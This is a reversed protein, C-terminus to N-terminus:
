QRIDSIGKSSLFHNIHWSIKSMVETMNCQIPPSRCLFQGQKVNQGQPLPQSCEGVSFILYINGITFTKVTKGFNIVALTPMIFFSAISLSRLIYNEKTMSNYLKTNLMTYITCMLKWLFPLYGNHM